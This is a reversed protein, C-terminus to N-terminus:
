ALPRDSTAATPRGNQGAAEKDARPKGFLQERELYARQATYFEKLFLLTDAEAVPHRWDIKRCIRACVQQRLHAGDPADPHRLLEELVQLEFAGYAALQKDTFNHQFAQGVLDGLLARKPLAIVITGAILDGGRMRDRNFLPLVVFALTWAATFLTQWVSASRGVSLLLGLPLFMEMERTLNRAIVAGPLLPGGGRDVVRLGVMRKGPTAGQWALEFHIFYLNRILFAIFLLISMTVIAGNASRFGMRWGLFAIFLIILYVLATACFWIFLDLVFATAREGYDAIEVPLSVGEPSILQRRNRGWGELFLSAQEHGTTM